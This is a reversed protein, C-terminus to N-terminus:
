VAGKAAAKPDKAPPAKKDQAKGMAPNTASFASGALAEESFKKRDNQVFVDSASNINQSDIEIGQDRLRYWAIKRGEKVAESAEEGKGLNCLLESLNGLFEAYSVDSQSHKRAHANIENAKQMADQLQGGKVLVMFDVEDLKRVYLSDKLALCELKAVSISDTVDEIRNQALLIQVIEVKTKLWLL